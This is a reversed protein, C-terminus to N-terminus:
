ESNFIISENCQLTYVIISSCKCVVVVICQSVSVESGAIIAQVISLKRKQGGSLDKALTNLKEYLEIERLIDSVQEQSIESPNM